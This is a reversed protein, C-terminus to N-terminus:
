FTGLIQININKLTISHEPHWLYDKNVPQLYLDLVNVKSDTTSLVKVFEIKM